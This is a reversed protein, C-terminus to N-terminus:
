SSVSESRSVSGYGFLIVFIPYLYNFFNSFFLFTKLVNEGVLIIKTIRKPYPDTDLDSDTDVTPSM